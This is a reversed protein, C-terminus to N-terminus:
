MAYIKVAAPTAEAGAYFIGLCAVYNTDSIQVAVAGNSNANYYFGSDSRITSGLHLPCLVFVHQGKAFIVEVLATSYETDAGFTYKDSEAILKWKNSASVPANDDYFVIGRLARICDNTLEGYSTSIEELDAYGGTMIYCPMGSYRESENLDEMVLGIADSDNQLTGDAGIPTGKKIPFTFTDWKMNVSVTKEIKM